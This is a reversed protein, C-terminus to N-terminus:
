GCTCSKNMGDYQYSSVGNDKCCAKCASGEAKAKDDAGCAANAKPDEPKADESSGSDCAVLSAALLFPLLLLISRCQVHM